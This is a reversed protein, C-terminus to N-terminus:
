WPLSSHSRLRTSGSLRRGTSWPAAPRRDIVRSTRGAARGHGDASSSTPTCLSHTVWWARRSRRRRGAVSRARRRRAGVPRDIGAAVADGERRPSSTITPLRSRGRRGDVARREGVPRPGVTSVPASAGRRRGVDVVIASSSRTSAMLNATQAGSRRAPRRRPRRRPDVAMRDRARRHREDRSTPLRPRRAPGPLRYQNETSPPGNRGSGRLGDWGSPTSPGDSTTSWAAKGQVSSSQAPKSRASRRADVLDVDAREGVRAREVAGDLVEVM